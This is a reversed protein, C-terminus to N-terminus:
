RGSHAEKEESSSNEIELTILADPNEKIFEKFAEFGDIVVEKDGREKM